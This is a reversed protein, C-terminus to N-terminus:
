KEDINEDIIDSSDTDSLNSAQSSVDGGSVSRGLTSLIVHVQFGSPYHKKDKYACDLESRPLVITIQEDALQEPPTDAFL